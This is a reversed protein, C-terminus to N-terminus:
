LASVLSRRSVLQRLFADRVAKNAISFKGPIALITDYDASVTLCLCTAQVPLGMCLHCCHEESGNVAGFQFRDIAVDNFAIDFTNVGLSLIDVNGEDGAL